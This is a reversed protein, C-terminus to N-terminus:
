RRGPEAVVLQSHCTDTTADDAPYYAEIRLEELTINAPANFTILTTFFSGTFDPSSLSLTVVGPSPAGLEPLRWHQPVGPLELLETLLEQLRHNDPHQLAERHLHALLSSATSTWDVIADRALEPDFILHYFNMEGPPPTACTLEVLRDAARNARLIDYRDNMVILPFPEHQDLMRDIVAKVSPDLTDDLSPELYRAEFGASLLMDNQRRLPIDLTHALQLVMEISPQSRGIELFSVHKASVQAAFALDLQSMGRRRRWYKLLAPFLGPSSDTM